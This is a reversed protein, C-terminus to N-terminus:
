HVLEEIATAFARVSEDWTPLTAAHRRAAAALSELRAPPGSLLSRLEVALRDADGPPVLIGADGPVTFPIAGGTTSVIPIGRALAETFAMGYGEYHSALVFISGSRYVADLAASDLEGVFEVRDGLGASEALAVVESAYEPDRDPSGAVVCTWPLDRVVELARMLVDHGKRRTLTGVCILRPPQNAGPGVAPAAPETGPVVARIHTEPVDYKALGRATFPSTVIVGTCPSLAARESETFRRSEEQTLGTEDALPHHLLSVISLRKGHKQIPGPFGGMALGDIVVTSGDPISDLAENLSARAVEDPGPFAGSLNHVDVQWGTSRLGEVMRADYLYGGTRQDLPGPVVFYM